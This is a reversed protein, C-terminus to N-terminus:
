DCWIGETQYWGGALYEMIIDPYCVYIVNKVPRAFKTQWQLM